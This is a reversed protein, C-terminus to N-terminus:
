YLAQEVWGYTTLDLKGTEGPATATVGVLINYNSAVRIPTPFIIQMNQVMGDTGLQVWNRHIGIVDRNDISILNTSIGIRLYFDGTSRTSILISQLWYDVGNNPAARILVFDGDQIAENVINAREEIRLGQPVKKEQQSPDAYFQRKTKRGGVLRNYARLTM